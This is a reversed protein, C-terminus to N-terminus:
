RVRVALAYERWAELFGGLGRARTQSSTVGSQVAREIAAVCAERQMATLSLRYMYVSDPGKFGQPVPLPDGALAERLAEALLEEGLHEFLEVCQGLMWGSWYDPQDCLARYTPWDM